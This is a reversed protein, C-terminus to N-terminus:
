KLFRLKYIVGNLFELINDILQQLYGETITSRFETIEKVCNRLYSVMDVGEQPEVSKYGKIIGYQGQYAEAFADRLEPMGQYLENLAMHAAFSTTQLHAIHGVVEISFLMTMFESTTKM